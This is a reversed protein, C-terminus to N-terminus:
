LLHINFYVFSQPHIKYLGRIDNAEIDKEGKNKTEKGTM